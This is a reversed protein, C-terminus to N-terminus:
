ICFTFARSSLTSSNSLPVLMGKLRSDNPQLFLTEHWMGANKWYGTAQNQKIPNDIVKVQRDQKVPETPTIPTEEVPKEAEEEEQESTQFLNRLSFGGSSQGSGINLAGTTYYRESSVEPLPAAVQDNYNEDRRGKKKSEKVVEKQVTKEFKTHEQVKPDFRVFTKSRSVWCITLLM